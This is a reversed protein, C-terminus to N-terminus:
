EMRISLLYLIRNNLTMYSSILCVETHQRRRSKPWENSTQSRVAWQKGGVNEAGHVDEDNDELVLRRHVESEPNTSSSSTALLSRLWARVLESRSPGTLQGEEVSSVLPFLAGGKDDIDPASRSQIMSGRVACFIVTLLVFLRCAAMGYLFLIKSAM